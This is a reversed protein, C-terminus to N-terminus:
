VVTASVPVPTTLVPTENFTAGVEKGKPVMLTPPLLVIDTVAVFVPCLVTVMAVPPIVKVPIPNESPFRVSGTLMATPPLAVMGITKVGAAEPATVPLAVIALLAALEGATTESEPVPVVVGVGENDAFGEATEKPLTGTPIFLVIFTVRDFVPVAAAATLATLKEPGNLRPLKVTGKLRPLLAFTEMGSTNVGVAVPLAVPLADITLLAGFEGNTIWSEPEDEAAWLTSRLQPALM